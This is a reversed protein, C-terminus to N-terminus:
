TKILLNLLFRAESMMPGYLRRSSTWPDRTHLQQHSCEFRVHAFPVYLRLSWRQCDDPIWLVTTVYTVKSICSLFPHILWLRPSPLVNRTRTSTQTVRFFYDFITPKLSAGRETRPFCFGLRIERSISLAAKLEAAFFRGFGIGLSTVFAKSAHGHKVRHKLPGYDWVSCARM